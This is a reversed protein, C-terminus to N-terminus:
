RAYTPPTPAASVDRLTVRVSKIKRPTADLVEVDFRGLDVHEGSTPIHGARAVVLGGLTTADTDDPLEWGTARNVERIATLGSIIWRDSGDPVVDTRVKDGESLIDGVLEEVLDELTVIGRMSGHEDVAVALHSARSQMSRLLSTASMSISVFSVPHLQEILPADRNTHRARALVDRVGIYGLVDDPDKGWVLL